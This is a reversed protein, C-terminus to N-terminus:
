FDAYSKSTSNEKIFLKIRKLFTRQSFFSINHIFILNPNIIIIAQPLACVDLVLAGYIFLFSVM